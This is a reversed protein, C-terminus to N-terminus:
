VSPHQKFTISPLVRLLVENLVERHTQQQEDLLKPRIKPNKIPIRLVAVMVVSHMSPTKRMKSSLAGITMYVPWEIQDGAFNLLHTGDFMFISPVLTDGV